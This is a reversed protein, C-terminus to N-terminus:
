FEAWVAFNLAFWASFNMEYGKVDMRIWECGNVSSKMCKIENWMLECEMEYRKVSLECDMENRKVVSECDLECKMWIKECKIEYRKVSWKVLANWMKECNARKCKMDKWLKGKKMEYRKVPYTFLYSFIHFSIFHCWQWFGQQFASVRSDHDHDKFKFYCSIYNVQIPAM